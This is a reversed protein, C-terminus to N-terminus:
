GPGVKAALTQVQNHLFELQNNWDDARSEALIEMETICTEILDIEEIILQGMMGIMVGLAELGEIGEVKNALSQEHLAKAYRAQRPSPESM